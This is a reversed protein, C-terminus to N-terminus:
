QQEKGCKKCYNAMQPMPEGCYYCYESSSKEQLASIQKKKKRTQLIIFLIIGFFIIIAIEWSGISAMNIIRYFLYFFADINVRLKQASEVNGTLSLLLELV